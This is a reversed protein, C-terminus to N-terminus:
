NRRAPPAPCRGSQANNTRPALEEAADIVLREGARDFVAGRLLLDSNTIRLDHLTREV